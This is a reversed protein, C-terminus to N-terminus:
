HNVSTFLVALAKGQVWWLGLAKPFGNMKLLILDLPEAGPPDLAFGQGHKKCRDIMLVTPAIFWLKRRAPIGEKIARGLEIGQPHEM